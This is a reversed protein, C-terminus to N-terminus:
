VLIFMFIMDAFLVALIFVELSLLTIYTDGGVELSVDNRHAPEFFSMLMYVWCLLTICDRVLPHERGLYLSKMISSDKFHVIRVERFALKYYEAAVKPAQTKDPDEEISKLIERYTYDIAHTSKQKLEVKPVVRAINMKSTSIIQDKIRFAARKKKNEQNKKIKSKFESSDSM